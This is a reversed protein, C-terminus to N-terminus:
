LGAQNYSKALLNIARLIKWLYVLPGIVIVAGLVGWLWFSGPTLCVSLGRRQLERQVRGCFRHNWVLYGIGLTIPGVIFFLLWYSMTKKGDYRSAITNIHHGFCAYLYIGYIGFTIISLLICTLLHYNDKLKYVNRDPQPRNATEISM